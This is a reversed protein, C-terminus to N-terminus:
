QNKDVMKGNEIENTKAGTMITKKKRSGTCKTKGGKELKEFYFNLNNIQSKEKKNTPM